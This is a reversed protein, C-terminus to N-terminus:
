HKVSQVQREDWKWVISEVLRVSTSVQSEYMLADEEHIQIPDFEIKDLSQNNFLSQINSLDKISVLQPPNQNIDERFDSYDVTNTVKLQCKYRNALYDAFLCIHMSSAESNDSDFDVLLTLTRRRSTRYIRLNILGLKEAISVLFDRDNLINQLSIKM